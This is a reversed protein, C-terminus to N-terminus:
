PSGHIERYTDPLPTYKKGFTVGTPYNKTGTSAIVIESNGNIDLPVDETSIMSGKITGGANGTFNIESAIVSGSVTGFNGTFNVSFGPALIFAGTLNRLEGYSEPLTEVGEAKVNGGIDIRNNVLDLAAGNEVVIVGRITSNQSFSVRNPAKILLVGTVQANAFAPNTGAPIYANDVVNGGTYPNVAYKAYESVDIDPFDPAPVGRHIHDREILATNTTGGVKAGAYLVTATPSTVSIDGSVEKGGIIVPTGDKSTSLVSGRAPDGLGTIISSGGTIIKGRSAVGYNFIASARPAQQFKVQITRPTGREPGQGYITTILFSGSQAIEVRFRRKGDTDLNIYTTPSPLWIKGNVVQVTKGGMNIQGDLMRGLEARANGMLTANTTNSPLDMAGLYYRVFHMGSEAALQAESIRQENRSVQSSLTTAAYFGIALTGFLVMYLMALVSSVGRRSKRRGPARRPARQAILHFTTLRM